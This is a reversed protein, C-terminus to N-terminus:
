CNTMILNNLQKNDSWLLAVASLHLALEPYNMMNNALDPYNMM